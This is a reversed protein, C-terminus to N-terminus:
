PTKVLQKNHERLDNRLVIRQEDENLKQYDQGDILEQKPTQIAFYTQGKAIVPKAPDSNQFFLLRLSVIKCRCSTAARM